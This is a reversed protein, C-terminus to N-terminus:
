TCLFKVKSSVYSSIKLIENINKPVKKKLLKIDKLNIVKLLNKSIQDYKIKRKLYLQVLQDNASVLATEFLSNNKPLQNLIKILPYKIKNANQFSLNNLKKIDINNSYSKINSNKEDNYLTNMIPVDMTTKHAVISIMNNKFEVIAHIYSDPHILVDIQNYNLGFIKKAEIVEFVKNMLTSSDVSIKKGMNWTPHKLVENIKIKKIKNLSFNLLPGGSATLYIKKVYHSKLKKNFAHWVSFHESDVPLFNTKNKKLQKEILNWACIISEKNAIAINKTFKILKLTPELGELGVISSMVYDIKNNLINNLNSYTNFIRIRKKEFLKKNLLYTKKDTLIVNKVKFTIAQKLLEKYNKNATLLKINFSEKDKSIIKLLSKGISGTSGLIAINKM